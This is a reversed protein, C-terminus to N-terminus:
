QEPLNTHQFSDLSPRAPKFYIPFAPALLSIRTLLLTQTQGAKYNFGCAEFAEREEVSHEHEDSRESQADAM